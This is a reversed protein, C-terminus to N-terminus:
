AFPFYSPPPPYLLYFLIYIICIHPGDGRNSVPSKTDDYHKGLLNLEFKEPSKGVVDQLFYQLFYVTVGAPLGQLLCYGFM